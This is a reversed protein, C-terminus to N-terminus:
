CAKMTILERFIIRVISRKDKSTEDALDEDPLDLHGDVVVLGESISRNGSVLVDLDKGVDLGVDAM